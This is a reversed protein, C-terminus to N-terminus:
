SSRKKGAARERAQLDDKARKRQINPNHPICPCPNFYEHEYPLGMRDHQDCFPRGCRHKLDCYFREWSLDHCIECYERFERPAKLDARLQVDLQKQVEDLWRAVPPFRGDTELEMLKDAAAEVAWQPKDHLKDYYVELKAYYFGSDSQNPCIAALLRNYCKLFRDRDIVTTLENAM